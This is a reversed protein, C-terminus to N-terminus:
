FRCVFWILPFHANNKEFLFKRLKDKRLIDAIYLSTFCSSRIYVYCVSYTIGLITNYTYLEARITNTIIHHVVIVRSLKHVYFIYVALTKIGGMPMGNETLTSFIFVYARVCLVCRRNQKKTHRGCM